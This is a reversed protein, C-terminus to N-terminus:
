IFKNNDHNSFNYTNFFRKKLKQNFNEFNYKIRHVGESLNNVLNSFPSAM